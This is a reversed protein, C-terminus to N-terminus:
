FGISATASLTATLGEEYDGAGNVSGADLPNVTVTITHTPPILEFIATAEVHDSVNYDIRSPSTSNNDSWRVFRYGVAPKAVVETGDKTYKVNQTLQGTVEGGEGATYSLTYIISDFVAMLDRERTVEFSYPNDSTVSAGNEYWGVFNYGKNPQAFLEATSFERLMGDGDVSGGEAPYAQATISFTNYQELEFEATFDENKVVGKETRVPTTIGDHWQVFRYGDSAVAEVEEGDAGHVVSLIVEKQEAGNHKIKGGDGATYTLTYTIKEFRAVLTRNSKVTFSYEADTSEVNGNEEWGVFKYGENATAKLTATTNENYTGAGNVSGGEAPEATATIEFTKTDQEFEATITSDKTINELTRPNQTSGDSWKKFHYNTNAKAEVPKANQGHVVTQPSDGELTGNAGAIYTLTYTKQVFEAVFTRNAAIDAISISAETSYTAGNETWGM